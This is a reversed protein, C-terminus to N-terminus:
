HSLKYVFVSVRQSMDQETQQAQLRKHTEMEVRAREPDGLESYAQSLHFHAEALDPKLQIAKQYEQAAQRWARFHADVNGLDLLADPDDDRLAISRSLLERARTFGEEPGSARAALYARHGLFYLPWYQEPHRHSYAEALTQAEILDKQTTDAALGLFYLSLLDDPFNQATALFVEMSEQEHGGGFYAVGLALAIRASAPFDKKASRAVLIAAEFNRHALLEQLYDFRYPESAPDLQAATQFARVAGLYDRRQEYVEGLLNEVEASAREKELAELVECAHPYDKARDYALGLNYRAASDHPDFSLANKLNEIAGSYDGAQAQLAGIQGLLEPSSSALAILRDATTRAAAFRRLNLQCKLLNLWLAPDQPDYKVAEAFEGVALSSKGEALLLLGLNAHAPSDHPRLRIAAQFERTGLKPEGARAAHKGLNLHAAASRPQLQVAREFHQLAELPRNEEDLVIGLLMHARYDAPMLSLQKQLEQQAFAFNRQRVAQEVAGYDFSDARLPVAALCLLALLIAPQRSFM